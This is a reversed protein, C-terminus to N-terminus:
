HAEDRSVISVIENSTRFTVIEPDADKCGKRITAIELNADLLIEPRIRIGFV